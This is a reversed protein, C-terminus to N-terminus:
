SRGALAEYIRTLGEASAKWNTREARARGAQGLRQRLAPNEVLERIRAAAAEADGVPFFRAAEEGVYSRVSYLDTVVMPLGSAMGELLANSATAKALPLLCIHSRRYLGALDEDSLGTHVRVNSPIVTGPRFRKVVHFQVDPLDGLLAAVRFLLDYDRFNSGVSVVRWPPEASPGGAAPHFFADDVGHQVLHVRAPDLWSKFWDSQDPSLTIVADLHRVGERDIMVEDLEPPMHFIAAVKPRNRLRSIWRAGHLFSHEADLYQVVDTAGERAVNLMAREGLWDELMYVMPARSFWNRTIRRALRFPASLYDRDKTVLREKWELRNPDFHKRVQRFGMHEGLHPYFTCLMQVRVPPAPSPSASM